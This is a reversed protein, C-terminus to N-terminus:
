RTGCYRLCFACINLKGEESEVDGRKKERREKRAKRRGQWVSNIVEILEKSKGCSRDYVGTM